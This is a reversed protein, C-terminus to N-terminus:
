VSELFLLGPDELYRVVKRLFRAADVGDTVRHDFTLSLHLIKRILIAGSVVWPREAIRGCGLIAADPYNIIPTAYTGGFHGYNTITFTSGRMEDLTITRARAREGLRDLEEALELVSKRAVDRLVPVMLGDPTDVAIGMNCYKKLVIENATDDISANLYPHELLAHQVAKIIFPLFTLHIGREHTEGTERVRLQWLETIDAEEMGTVFATQRQSAVLNRAITRRVGRLPIREVPGYIDPPSSAAGTSTLLDERTISGRPGSGAIGSLDVGMERALARVAPTALVGKGVEPGVRVEEAEPLEGVIGVSRPRPPAEEGEIGITLLAAGVPVLEGERRLLHEIRGAKPSPIEVVAKDTEVEAIGQHEAILDGEKVLWRRLEAETIGEGLDPLKFEFPM